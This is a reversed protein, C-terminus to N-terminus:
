CTHIHCLIREAIDSSKSLNDTGLTNIIEEVTETKTVDKQKKKRLNPTSNYSLFDIINIM